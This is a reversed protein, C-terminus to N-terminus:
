VSPVKLSQKRKFLLAVVLAGFAAMMVPGLGFQPVGSPGPGVGIPPVTATSPISIVQAAWTLCDDGGGSISASDTTAALTEPVSYTKTDWLSGYSWAAASTKPDSGPFANGDILAANYSATNGPLQGDAVIYTITATTADAAGHNFVSTLSGGTTETYTGTYVYINNSTTGTTIVVLSAGDDLPATAASWPNEGNTIGSSFGSVTNAGSTVYPTVDAAFVWMYGDGWCPSVDTSQQIGTIPNGNISASDLGTNTPNIIGWILYAAVVTGTYSVTILGSGTNRLATGAAAYSYDGGIQALATPNLAPDPAPTVGPAVSGAPNAAAPAVRVALCLLLVAAFALTSLSRVPKQM